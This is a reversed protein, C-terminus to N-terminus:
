ASLTLEKEGWRKLWLRVVVPVHEGEGKLGERAWPFGLGEVRRGGGSGSEKGEVKTRGVFPFMCVFVGCCGGVEGHRRREV